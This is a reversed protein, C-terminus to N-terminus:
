IFTLLKYTGHDIDYFASLPRELRCFRHSRGSLRRDPIMNRLWVFQSLNRLVKYAEDFHRLVKGLIPQHSAITNSINGM